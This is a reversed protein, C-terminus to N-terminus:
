APEAKLVIRCDAGQIYDAGAAIAADIAQQETDYIRSGGRGGNRTPDYCAAPIRGVFFFKGDNPNPKGQYMPSNIRQVAAPMRATAMRNILSSLEGM